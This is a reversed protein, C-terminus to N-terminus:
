SLGYLRRANRAFVADEQGPAHRAVLAKALELWHAYDGALNLVPWDSGWLVREPGFSHFVHAIYPDLQHAAADPLAQTLLGSLKCHIDTTQALRTIQEAWRDFEGAAIDPKGAHDLVSRLDKHRALRERLAAIQPPTVLADFVLDHNAMADFAPDLDRRLIWDPEPIDQIMPRLGKLKGAGGRVLDAIHAAAHASTFDTWGVVAAIFTYKQALALLYHTEAETPAAQVLVTSQVNNAALLSQLEHPLYDRHLAGLAPTLWAYDGRDLRWFHQHADVMKM